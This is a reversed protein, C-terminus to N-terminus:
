YNNGLYKFLNTKLNIVIRMQYGMILNIGYLYNEYSYRKFKLRKDVFSLANIGFTQM